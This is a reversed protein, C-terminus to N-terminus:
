PKEEENTFATDRALHEWADLEATLDTTHARIADVADAGLALHLPPHPADLAARIADAAKAPDGLQRGDNRRVM